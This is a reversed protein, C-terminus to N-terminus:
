ETLIITRSQIPTPGSEEALLEISLEEGNLLQTKTEVPIILPMSARQAKVRSFTALSSVGRTGGSSRAMVFTPTCIPMALELIRPIKVSSDKFGHAITDTEIITCAPAM